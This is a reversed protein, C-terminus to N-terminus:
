LRTELTREQKDGREGRPVLPGQSRPEDIPWKRTKRTKRIEKLRQKLALSLAFSNIHIHCQKIRM